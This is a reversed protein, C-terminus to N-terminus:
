MAMVVPGCLMGTNLSELRDASLLRSMMANRLVMSSCGLWPPMVSPESPGTESPRNAQTKPSPSRTAQATQSPELDAKAV